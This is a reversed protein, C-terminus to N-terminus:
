GELRIRPDLWALLLDSVFNMVVIVVTLMLLIAGAVNMDLDLFSKLLLDGLETLGLVAAVIPLESFIRNVDFGITSVVPNIALRAPYKVMLRTEPLGRARAAMVSLKGLEDSMTARVTQLQYAIASWGLVLAPIWLHKVLDWLKAFSWPADKYEDSFLGGISAGFWRNAFYLLVLALLFNPLALGLYSFITLGYDAGSGRRVAAYLGIPIAILYTLLLTVMLLGMTLWVKDGIVINVSTLFSYAQGFDGRLVIGGIWDAYRVLMPADLGLEVRIAQIDAPTVAVGTGSFKRFAYRDAYDGPPLEMILFVMFSVMLLTLAMGLLRRILFVAM